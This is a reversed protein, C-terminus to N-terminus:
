GNIWDILGGGDNYFGDAGLQVIVPGYAFDVQFSQCGTHAPNTQGVGQNRDCEYGANPDNGNPYQGKPNKDDANGVCGACPKKSNNDTSKGNQSASGDCTSDYPGGQNAGHGTDSHHSVSCDAADGGASGFVDVELSHTGAGFSGTEWSYLVQQNATAKDFTSTPARYSAFTLEDVCGDPVTFTVVVHDGKEVASLPGSVGNITYSYSTIECAPDAPPTNAMAGTGLAVITAGGLLLGAITRGAYHRIHRM